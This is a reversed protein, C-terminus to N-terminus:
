GRFFRDIDEQTAPRPGRKVEGAYANIIKIFDRVRLENLETFTLGIKKANALILHEIDEVPSGNDSVQQNSEEPEV